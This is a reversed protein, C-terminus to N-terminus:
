AREQLLNWAKRGEEGGLTNKPCSSTANKGECSSPNRTTEVPSIQDRVCRCFVRKELHQGIALRTEMTNKVTYLQM